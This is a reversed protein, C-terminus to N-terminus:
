IKLGSRWNNRDAQNNEKANIITNNQMTAKNNNKQKVIMIIIITKVQVASQDIVTTKLHAIYIFNSKIQCM